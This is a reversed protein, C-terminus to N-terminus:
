KQVEPKQQLMAEIAADAEEPTKGEALLQARLKDRQEASIGQANLESKLEQAIEVKKAQTATNAHVIATSSLGLVIAPVM